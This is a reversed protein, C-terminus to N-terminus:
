AAVVNYENIKYQVKQLFEANFVKVKNGTLVKFHTGTENLEYEKGTKFGKVNYFKITKM